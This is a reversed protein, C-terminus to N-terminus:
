ESANAVVFCFALAPEHIRYVDYARKVITTMLMLCTRTWKVRGNAIALLLKKRASAAQEEWEKRSQALLVNAFHHLDEPTVTLAVQGGMKTLSMIDVMNKRKINTICVSDQEYVM